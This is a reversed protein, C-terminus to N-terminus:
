FKFCGYKQGGRKKHKKAPTSKKRASSGDFWGSSKSSKKGSKATSGSAKNVQKPAATTTAVQTETATNATFTQEFNNTAVNKAAVPAKRQAVIESMVDTSATLTNATPAPTTFEIMPVAQPAPPLSKAATPKATTAVKATSTTAVPKAPATAVPQTTTLKPAAVANPRVSQVTAAATPKEIKAVPIAAPKPPAVAIRVVDSMGYSGNLQGLIEADNANGKKYVITTNAYKEDTVTEKINQASLTTGALMLAAAAILQPNFKLSINM